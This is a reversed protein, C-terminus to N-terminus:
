EDWEDATEDWGILAHGGSLLGDIRWEPSDADNILALEQTGTATIYEVVAVWATVVVEAGDEMDSVRRQLASTIDEDVGGITPTLPETPDRVDPLGYRHHDVRRM